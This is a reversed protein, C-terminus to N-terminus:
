WNRRRATVEVRLPLSAMVDVKSGPRTTGFRYDFTTTFRAQVGKAFRWTKIIAVTEELLTRDGSLVRLEAVEGDKVDLQVKVQGELELGLALRPYETPLEARVPQPFATEGLLYSNKQAAAAPWAIVVEQIVLKTRGIHTAEAGYGKLARHELAAALVPLAPEDNMGLKPGHLEGVVVVFAEGEDRLLRQLEEPYQFGPSPESFITSLVGPCVPERHDYFGGNRTLIGEFKVRLVDGAQITQLASCMASTELWALEGAEATSLTCALVGLCTWRVIKLPRSIHILRGASLTNDAELTSYKRALRKLMLVM